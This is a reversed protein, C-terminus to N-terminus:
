SISTARDMTLGQREIGAAISLLSSDRGNAAALMLGVPPGDPEHVPLSIACGDLFNFLSPNRLLLLNLRVYEDDEAFAALPPAVIPVTPALVADFGEMAGVFDEIMERRAVRIAALEEDGVQAGARIRGAVRPDYGEGVEQLQRAHFDWAERAAIGGRANLEPLREVAPMRIETLTAGAASLGSLARDYAGAVWDDMGETVYHDLVALKLESVPRAAPVEGVGGAMVDDLAACGAVDAAIVGVSDLSSSLPYVGERPVRDASPKWGTIGTLAAPIRCSGGTDTGIGAVAMGEAVSVAAGSSSGGPVRGTQRDWPNLPTSYHPNLGVGSYAFETMNTRGVPVFGADLLRQIAPATQAAPPAADLVVSGARTVQGQVDFLDKISIPMGAHTPLVAGDARARDIARARQLADQDLAIFVQGAASSEAEAVRALAQSLLAESTIEGAALAACTESYTRM